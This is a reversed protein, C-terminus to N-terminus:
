TGVGLGGDACGGENLTATLNARGARLAPLVGAAVGALVSAGAMFLLVRLDISTEDARPFQDAFLAAVTELSAQAALLGGVAGIGALVLAEILLQQFVRGRGAGLAA